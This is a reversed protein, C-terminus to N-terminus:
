PEPNPNSDPQRNSADLESWVKGRFGDELDSRPFTVTLIEGPTPALSADAMWGMFVGVARPIDLCLAPITTGISGVPGNTDM